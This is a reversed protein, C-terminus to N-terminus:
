ASRQQQIMAELMESIFKQKTRPMLSIQEVQRQLMSVPGRKSRTKKDDNGLLEDISIGFTKALIPLTSVPIRRRGTEYSNVTQQSANIIEAMQLQTIKQVKRFEAIRTGLEEFFAREDPSIAMNSIEHLQKNQMDYGRLKM